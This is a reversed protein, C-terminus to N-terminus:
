CTTVTTRQGFLNITSNNRQDDKYNVYQFPATKSLFGLRMSIHGDQIFIKLAHFPAIKSLFGLRCKEEGHEFLYKKGKNKPGNKYNVYQFPAMKSLFGLRMSIPGDQIFIGFAHFPAIKSLFGLRCKEDGHEFLYCGHLTLMYHITM